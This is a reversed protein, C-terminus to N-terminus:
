FSRVAEVYAEINEFPVEPEVLHTPACLLGGRSRSISLNRRVVDRVEDPTGFPMTSQTGVTGWFGISGAYKEYIPAFEMCEPQVPNLVDIGCEVLDDILPLVFGCSHYSIVIEPNVRRAAAIVRRLPEKLWQRYTERSMMITHQMGIDDGLRLLDVGAAAFGAARLCALRTIREIHYVAKGDDSLMDVMLEDMSRLYWATEWVTCEQVVAAALGREHLQDVERRVASIASEDFEPYPYSEFEELTSFGRMPHLMRTMHMAEPAPEHGEGFKSFATGEAFREGPFFRMWDRFPQRLLDGGVNRFPMEYYDRYDLRGHRREFEREQAPCLDFYVLGGGHGGHKWLNRLKERLTM